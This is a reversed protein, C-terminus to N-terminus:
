VIQEVQLQVCKPNGPEDEDREQDPTVKVTFCLKRSAKGLRGQYATSHSIHKLDPHSRGGRSVTLPEM